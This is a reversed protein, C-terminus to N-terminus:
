RGSRGAATQASVASNTIPDTQDAVVYGVSGPAADPREYTAVGADGQGLRRLARHDDVVRDGVVHHATGEEAVEGPRSDTTGTSWPSCFTLGRNTLLGSPVKAAQHTEVAPAARARRDDGTRRAHGGALPFAQKGPRLPTMATCSDM